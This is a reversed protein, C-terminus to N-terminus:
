HGFVLKGGLMGLRTVLGGAVALFASYIAIDTTSAPAQSWGVSLRWVVMALVVVMLISSLKKKEPFVGTTTTGFRHSADSWGTFFTFPAAASSVMMLYFSTREFTDDGLALYAVWAVLALPLSGNPFHAMVPHLHLKEILGGIGQHHHDPAKTEPVFADRGAGCVPCVDPPESGSHVYNCVTCRWRDAKVTVAKSKDEAAPKKKPPAPEEGEVHPVFKTWPQKCVPCPDPPSDGTHVYNCVTCRWQRSASEADADADADAAADADADVDTDADADADADANADADAAAEEEFPVFVDKPQKCVPCEDPPEDGEHLYGCVTCKWKKAGAM